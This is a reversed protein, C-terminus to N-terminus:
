KEIAVADSNCITRSNCSAFFVIFAKPVCSDVTNVLSSAAPITYYLLM